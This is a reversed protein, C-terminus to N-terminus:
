DPNTAELGDSAPMATYYTVNYEGVGFPDLRYAPNELIDLRVVYPTNDKAWGVGTGTNEPSDHMGYPYDRQDHNVYPEEDTDNNIQETKWENILYDPVSASQDGAQKLSSGNFISRIVSLNDLDDKHLTSRFGTLKKMMDDHTAFYADWIYKDGTTEDTLLRLHKSSSHKWLGLVENFTPNIYVVFDQGQDSPINVLEAQKSIDRTMDDLAAAKNKLMDILFNNVEGENSVM